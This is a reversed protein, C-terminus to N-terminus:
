REVMQRALDLAAGPFLFLAVSATATAVLAAVIPWPAEGHEHAEAHDGFFAAYVIPLFYGATLATSAFMVAVALWQGSGLASTLIFWKGFFGATPPVGIMALAGVAFAGMTWPMRRGIGSLQRIETAHAATYVSGAAFFLTIKGLAHGAIHIAAGIASIPTLLAAAFVV